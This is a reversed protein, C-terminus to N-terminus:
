RTGEADWRVMLLGRPPFMAWAPWDSCKAGDGSERWPAPSYGLDDLSVGMQHNRSFQSLLFGCTNRCRKLGLGTHRAKELLLSPGLGRPVPNPSPECRWGGHRSSRVCCSGLSKVSFSGSPGREPSLWDLTQGEYM